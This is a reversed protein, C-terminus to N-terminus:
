MRDICTAVPGGIDPATLALIDDTAPGALAEGRLVPRECPLARLAALDADLQQELVALEGPEVRMGGGKAGTVAPAADIPEAAPVARDPSKGCGWLAAALLLMRPKM